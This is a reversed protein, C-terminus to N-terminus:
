IWTEVISPKDGAWRPLQHLGRPLLTRVIEITAGMRIEATAQMKGALIEFRRAVCCHPFDEPHDYVVWMTMPEEDLPKTVEQSKIPRAGKERLVTRALRMNPDLPFDFFDHLHEALPGSPTYLGNGVPPEQESPAEHQAALTAKKKM